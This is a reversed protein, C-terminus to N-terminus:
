LYLKRDSDCLMKENEIIEKLLNLINKEYEELTCTNDLEYDYPLDCQWELKNKEAAKVYDDRMRKFGKIKIFIFGMEKLFLYDPPRCDDNTIINNKSNLVNQYFNDLLFTSNEKRIKNGFFQLLEGDQTDGIEKEIFHYFYTQLDYLPKAIKINQSKFHKQIIGAATSKGYLSPAIFCIKM